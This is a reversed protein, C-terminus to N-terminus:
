SKKKKVVGVPQILKYKRIVFPKSSCRVKGQNVTVVYDGASFKAPIKYTAPLDNYPRNNSIVWQLTKIFPKSKKKLIVTVQGLLSSTDWSVALTQGPYFIKKSKKRGEHFVNVWRISRSVKIEFLNSLRSVAGQGIRVYYKGPTWSSSINVAKPIDGVPYNTAITHALSLNQHLLGITVNGQIASVKWSVIVTDGHFV